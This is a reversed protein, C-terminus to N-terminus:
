IKLFSRIEKIFRKRTRIFNVKFNGMLPDLSGNFPKMKQNKYFETVEKHLSLYSGNYDMNLWKLWHGIREDQM